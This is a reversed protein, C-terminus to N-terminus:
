NWIIYIRTSKKYKCKLNNMFYLLICGWGIQSVLGKTIVLWSNSPGESLCIFFDTHNHPNLTLDIM